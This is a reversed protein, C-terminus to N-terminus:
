KRRLIGNIKEKAEEITLGTFAEDMYFKKSGPILPEGKTWFLLGQPDIMMIGSTTGTVRYLVRKGTKDKVRNLFLLYRRQEPDRWARLSELTEITIISGELGDDGRIIDTVEVDMLKLKQYGAHKAPEVEEIGTLNVAAITKTGALLEELTEPGPVSLGSSPQSCGICLSLLGFIIVVTLRLRTRTEM